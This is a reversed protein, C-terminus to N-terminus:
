STSEVTFAAGPFAAALNEVIKERLNPPPKGEILLRDQFRAVLSSGQAEDIAIAAVGSVAELMKRLAADLFRRYRDSEFQFHGGGAAASTVGRYFFSGVHHHFNTVGPFRKTLEVQWQTLSAMDPMVRTQRGIYELLLWGNYGRLFGFWFADTFRIQHPSALRLSFFDQPKPPSLKEQLLWSFIQTLPDPVTVIALPSQLVSKWDRFLAAGSAGCAFFRSRCRGDKDLQELFSQAFCLSEFVDRWRFVNRVTEPEETIKWLDHFDGIVRVTDRDEDKGAFIETTKRPRIATVELAGAVAFSQHVSEWQSLDGLVVRQLARATRDAELLQQFRARGRDLLKQRDVAIGREFIAKDIELLRHEFNDPLRAKKLPPLGPERRPPPNMSRAFAMDRQIAERVAADQAEESPPVPRSGPPIGYSTTIM